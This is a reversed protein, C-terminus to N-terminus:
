FVVLLRNGGKSQTTRCPALSQVGHDKYTGEMGSYETIRCNRGLLIRSKKELPSARQAHTHHGQPNCVANKGQKNPTESIFEM